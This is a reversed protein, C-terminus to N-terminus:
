SPRVPPRGVVGRPEPRARRHELGGPTGSGESTQTPQCVSYPLLRGWDVITVASDSGGQCLPTFLALSTRCLLNVPSDTASWFISFARPRATRERARASSGRTEGPLVINEPPDTVLLIMRTTRRLPGITSPTAPASPLATQPVHGSVTLKLSWM